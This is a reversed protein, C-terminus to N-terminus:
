KRRKRAAAAVIAGVAGISVLALVGPEPIRGPLDDAAYALVTACMGFASILFQRCFRQM